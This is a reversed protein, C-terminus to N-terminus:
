SGQARGEIIKGTSILYSQNPRLRVKVAPKIRSPKYDFRVSYKDVSVAKMNEPLRNPTIRRGNLWIAWTQPGSYVISSLHLATSSFRLKRQAEKEETVADKAQKELQGRRALELGEIEDATFMLDPVTYEIVAPPAEIEVDDKNAVAADAPEQGAAWNASLLLIGVPWILFRNAFERVTSLRENEERLAEPNAM